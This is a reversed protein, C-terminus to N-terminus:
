SEDKPTKVPRQWNSIIKQPSRAIALSNDAVSKTIVSGAGITAKDGVEVPAVLSTNSGIFAQEGIVTRHKNAGDYNCTITGAGINAAAGVTCDGLYSLHSAKAGEHLESNKTEVFNGIKVGSHLVTGPRLRAYPGVSCREAVVAQELVSHSHVVSDDGIECDRLHSFPGIHCNNGLVVEGEFVCDVDITVNEGVTLSGRCDFRNPDLLTVGSEDMLENAQRRQYLRELAALQSKSNVGQTELADVAVGVVSGSEAKVLSVLDTLYFENQRNSNGLDALKGLYSPPLVLIGTNVEKIQKQVETADQEEVIALIAGTSSRVIRGLGTPDSAETTLVGLADKPVLELFHLLTSAQVLPVDGYLILVRSSQDIVTAAQLAAHGTGLQQEQYIWEVDYSEFSHRVSDGGSGFVVYTNNSGIACATLLVHELLPKGGLTHLVKPLKSKMRVGKGAALILTVLEM